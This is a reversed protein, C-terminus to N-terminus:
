IKSKFFKIDPVEFFNLEGPLTVPIFGDHSFTVIYIREPLGAIFDGNGNTTFTNTEASGSVAAFHVETGSHETEGELLCNGTITVARDQAFPLSLLLIAFITSIQKMDGGLQIYGNSNVSM